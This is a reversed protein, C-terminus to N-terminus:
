QSSRSEESVSPVHETIEAGGTKALCPLASAIETPDISISIAVGRCTPARLSSFIHPM